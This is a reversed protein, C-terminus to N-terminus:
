GISEWGNPEWDASDGAALAGVQEYLARRLERLADDDPLEAIILVQSADHLNRYMRYGIAGALQAQAVLITRSWEQLEKWDNTTIIATFLVPM